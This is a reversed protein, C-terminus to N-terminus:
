KFEYKIKINKNLVPNTKWFSPFYAVSVSIIKDSYGKIIEETQAVSKGKIKGIAENEDFKPVVKGQVGVDLTLSSGDESQASFKTNIGDEDVLLEQNDELQKSSLEKALNMVQSNQYSLVILKATISAKFKDIESGANESTSLNVADLSLAEDLITYEANETRLEQALKKALEDSVTKNAKNIDEESIITVQKSTGGTFAESSSATIKSALGAIVFQSPGLNYDPGANQAEVAVKITGPVIQGSAVTAGGVTVAKTSLFVKSNSTFKSGAPITHSLTDENNYITVEGSAKQGIEKTGTASFEQEFSGEKSLEKGILINEAGEEVPPQTKLISIVLNKEYDVQEVLINISARPIFVYSSGLFLALIFLALGIALARRKVKDPGIKKYNGSVKSHEFMKEHKQSHDSDSNKDLDKTEFIQKNHINGATKAIYGTHDKEPQDFADESNEPEDQKSEEDLDSKEDSESEKQTIDKQVFRPSEEADAVKDQDSDKDSEQDEKPNNKYYNVAFEAPECDEDAELIKEEKPKDLDSVLPKSDKLNKFVTLGAQAALNTGITDGTILDLKIKAKSAERQLLRLNVLSQLLMAGKPAVVAVSKEPSKKVKDIIATIEEDNEIYIVHRM